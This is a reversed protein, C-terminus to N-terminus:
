VNFKIEMVDGDQVIYGAPEHRSVKRARCEEFSQLEIVKDYAAVEARIFGRELDSHIVGAAVRATTGRRISWARVEDPGVTFFSIAELHDYLVRLLRDRVPDGGGYSALFERKEAESDLAAVEAEITACLEVLPWQAAEAVARMSATQAADFGREHHNLVAIVPKATLFRFGRLLKEDDASLAFGRVPQESELRLHLQELLQCEREEQPARNGKMKRLRELRNEVRKLDELVFDQYLARLAAGADVKEDDAFGFGRVAVCLADAEQLAAPQPKCEVFCTQVATTKKPNYLASLAQLRADPLAIVARPGTVTGALARFLTSTGALAPGTVAVTLM